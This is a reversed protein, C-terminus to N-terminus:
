EGATIHILAVDFRQSFTAAVYIKVGKTQQTMGGQLSQSPWLVM